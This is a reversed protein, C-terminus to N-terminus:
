ESHENWWKQLSNALNELSNEVPFDYENLLSLQTEVDARRAYDPDCGVLITSGHTKSLVSWTGLEFLTIPCLTEKPFWFIIVAARRLFDFEWKIQEHHIDTRSVDFNARRPNIPILGPCKEAILDKMTDQWPLCGSIGGALFVLAREGEYAAPCEIYGM